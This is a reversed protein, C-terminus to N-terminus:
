GSRAPFCARAEGPRDGEPQWGDEQETAQAAALPGAPNAEFVAVNDHPTAGGPEEEMTDSHEGVALM